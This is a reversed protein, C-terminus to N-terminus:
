PVFSDLGNLQDPSKLFRMQFLIREVDNAQLNQRFSILYLQVMLEFHRLFVSSFLGFAFDPLWRGQFVQLNAALAVRFVFINGGM